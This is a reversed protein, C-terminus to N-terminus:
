GTQKLEDPEVGKVHGDELIIAAPDTTRCDEEVVQCKHKDAIEAILRLGDEDLTSADPILFVALEPNAAAMVAVSVETQQRHSAQHLPIGHLTPGDDSFGLGEVPFNAAAIRKQREIRNADLKVSLEASQEQLKTVKVVQAARQQNARVKCNSEEATDIQQRIEDLDPDTLSAVEAALKAAYESQDTITQQKDVLRQRLEALAAEAEAIEETLHEADDRLNQVDQRAEAAGERKDDNAAQLERRRDQEASLEAFSVEKEPADEYRPPLQNLAGEADRLQRNVERRQEYLESHQEDLDSFDLGALEMLMQTQKTGDSQAFAIPNYARAKLLQSLKEQPKPYSLGEQNTLSLREGSATYVRKIVLDLEAVEGILEARDEGEKIPKTVRDHKQEFAKKGETLAALAKLVATKGSNNPGGIVNVGGSLAIDLASIRMFNRIQLRTIHAM